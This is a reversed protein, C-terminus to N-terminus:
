WVVGNLSKQMRQPPPTSAKKRASQLSKPTNASARNRPIVRDNLTVGWLETPWPTEGVGRGLARQEVHFMRSEGM